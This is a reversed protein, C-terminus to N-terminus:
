TPIQSKIKPIRNRMLAVSCLYLITSVVTAILLFILAYAIDTYWCPEKKAMKLLPQRLYGNTLFLPLSIAGYFLLIKNFLSSKFYPRILQYISLLLILACIHNLYWWTKYTTGLAFIVLAALCIFVSCKIPKERRALLVGLSIEPLHGIFTFFLNVKLNRAIYDNFFFMFLVGTAGLLVLGWDKVKKSYSFLLPFFFYFQFIFSMFWWPGVPKFHQGPILNSISLASFLLDKNLLYNFSRELGSDYGTKLLWVGIALLFIPYIKLYRNKIFGWYTPKSAIFKRTLGYASLFIFIQVGFHGFFSFLCRIMEEPNNLLISVFAISNAKKFYFENERPSVSLLHFFNHLVIMIIGIGRLRLADHRTLDGCKISMMEKDDNKLTM